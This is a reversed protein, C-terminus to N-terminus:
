LRVNSASRNTPAVAATAHQPSAIRRLDLEADDAARSFIRVHGSDNTYSPSFGYSAQWTKTLHSSDSFGAAHAAETWSHGRMHLDAATYYKLWLQYSRLPLGVTRSFHRSTGSYSLQLAHALERLSWAPNELLLEHLRSESPTRPRVPKLQAAAADVVQEFVREADVLDLRGAYVDALAADVDGLASRDLTVVGPAAIGHFAAYHPHPPFVHVSVLGADVARLGRRTLPAIAVMDHTTRTAGASVEVTKGRTALLLVAAHRVTNPTVVWPSTFIFGRPGFWYLHDRMQHSLAGFANVERDFATRM